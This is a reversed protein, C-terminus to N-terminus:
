PAGTSSPSRRRRRRRRRAPSPEESTGGSRAHERGHGARADDRRPGGTRPRHRPPGPRGRRERARHPVPTVPAYLHEEPVTAPLTFGILREIPELFEADYECVFSLAQGSAGARATRGARHVYDEPDQPLDYNIVHSVAEIHLGRSAVDTAVLVPLTGQKFRELMRLRHRQDMDGTIGGAHVDNAELLGVLHQATRRMNTFVLIREGPESRLVGLLLSPKEGAGVHYVLHDIKEATVQDESASIHIPDNMHEYALELVDWSLTASFLMSQRTTVPPLRRLLFRLDRIFGMDFMRDAEDIVLVECRTLTYAHQKYYDILRGPTGVLVDAGERLAERQQRYEVGGYVAHIGLGTHGGLVRADGTIQVVLERTPAIVLARPSAPRRPPRTALLRTFLTVLFAATKGTGTQAQGAVDRGGLTRPLVREQIPTCRTFGADRIGARVAEPLDLEDFSIGNTTV